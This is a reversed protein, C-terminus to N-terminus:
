SVTNNLLSYKVMIGPQSICVTVPSVPNSIYHGRLVVPNVTETSRDVSRPACKGKNGHM